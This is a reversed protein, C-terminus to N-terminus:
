GVSDKVEGDLQRFSAHIYTAMDSMGYWPVSQPGAVTTPTNQLEALSPRYVSATAPRMCEDSSLM